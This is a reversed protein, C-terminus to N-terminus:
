RAGVCYNKSASVCMGACVPVGENNLTATGGPQTSCMIIGNKNIVCQGLSCVILGDKNTMIRGGPPACVIQGTNNQACNGAMASQASLLVALILFVISFRLCM